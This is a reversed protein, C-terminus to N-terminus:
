YIYFACTSAYFIIVYNVYFVFLFKSKLNSYSFIKYKLLKVVILINNRLYTKIMYCLLTFYFSKCKIFAIACLFFITSCVVFCMKLM